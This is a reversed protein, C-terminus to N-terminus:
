DKKNITPHTPHIYVGDRVTAFGVKKDEQSVPVTKAQEFAKAMQEYTFTATELGAAVSMLTAILKKM